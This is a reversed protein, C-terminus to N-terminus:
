DRWCCNAYNFYSSNHHSYNLTYLYHDFLNPGLFSRFSENKKNEEENIFKLHSKKEAEKNWRPYALQTMAKSDVISTLNKEYLDVFQNINNVDNDTKCNDSNILVDNIAM